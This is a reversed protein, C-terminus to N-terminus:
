SRPLLGERGGSVWASNFSRDGHVQDALADLVAIAEASLEADTGALLEDLHNVYRTGPIAALHLGFMAAKAYLWALALGATPLDSEAALARVRGALDHNHAINEAAFWPFKRRVDNEALGGPDFHDTLIGRGVPSFAVFGIGLEACAPIVYREVDRAFISWESQVATIPHEAHGRRIEEGTHESLGIGRVKGAQILEALAGVSEEVPVDPDPRHLYYLDVYDTGLRGLSLDIQERIHEPRGNVSRKGVEAGPVIGCKTALAIEHRRGTLFRGLISESVGRGYINATDIFTVGRDYVGHLLELAAQEEIHGYAGAISMAGYGLATTTLSQSGSGLEVAPVGATSPEATDQAM